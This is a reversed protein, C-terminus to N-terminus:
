PRSKVQIIQVAKQYKIESDHIVQCDLSRSFQTRYNILSNNVNNKPLKPLHLEKRLLNPM